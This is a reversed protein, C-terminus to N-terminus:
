SSNWTLNRPLQPFPITWNWRTFSHPQLLPVRGQYHGHAIALLSRTVDGGVVLSATSALSGLGIGAGCAVELVRKGPCYCSAVQYRHALRALEERDAGIGPIETIPTYDHVMQPTPTVRPVTFAGSSRPM